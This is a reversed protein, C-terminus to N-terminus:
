ENTQIIEKVLKLCENFGWGTSGMNWVTKELPLMELLSKKYEEVAKQRQTRFIPLCKILGEKIGEKGWSSDPVFTEKWIIETMEDLIDKKEEWNDTQKM